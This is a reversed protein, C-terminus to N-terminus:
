HCSLNKLFHQEFDVLADEVTKYGIKPYIEEYSSPKENATASITLSFLLGFSVFFLSLIRNM